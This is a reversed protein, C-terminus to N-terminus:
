LFIDSVCTIVVAAVVVVVVVVVVVIVIVVVVVAVVGVVFPVTFAVFLLCFGLLRILKSTKCSFVINLTEFSEGFLVWVPVYCFCSRHRAKLIGNM